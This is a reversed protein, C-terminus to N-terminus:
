PVQDFAGSLVTYVAAGPEPYANEKNTTAGVIQAYWVGDVLRMGSVAISDTHQANSATATETTFPVTYTYSGSGEPADLTAAVAANFEIKRGQETPRVFGFATAV